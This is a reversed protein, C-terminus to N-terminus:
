FWEPSTIASWLGHKDGDVMLSGNIFWEYDNIVM